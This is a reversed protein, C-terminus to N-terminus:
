LWPVNLPHDYEGKELKPKTFHPLFNYHRSALHIEIFSAKTSNEPAGGQKMCEM